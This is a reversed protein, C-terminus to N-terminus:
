YPKALSYGIGSKTLIIKPNGPDKELKKRLRLIHSRLSVAVGDYEDGWVAEALHARTVVQGANKM